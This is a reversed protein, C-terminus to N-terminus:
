KVHSDCDPCIKEKWLKSDPSKWVAGEYMNWKYKCKPCWSINEDARFSDTKHNDYAKAPIVKGGLADIVWQISEHKRKPPNAKLLAELHPHIEEGEDYQERLRELLDGKSPIVRSM